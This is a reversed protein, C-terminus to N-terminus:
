YGTYTPNKTKYNRLSLHAFYYLVLLLLHYILEIIPKKRMFKRVIMESIGYTSIYLLVNPLEDLWPIIASSM